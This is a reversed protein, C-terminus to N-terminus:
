QSTQLLVTISSSLLCRIMKMEKLLKAYIRIDMLRVWAFGSKFMRNENKLNVSNLYNKAMTELKVIPLFVNKVGNEDSM